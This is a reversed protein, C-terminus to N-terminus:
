VTRNGTGTETKLFICDTGNETRYKDRSKAYIYIHINPIYIARYITYIYLLTYM